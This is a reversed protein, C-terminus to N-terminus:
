VLTFATLPGRSIEKASLNKGLSCLSFAEGAKDGVEKAIELGSEHYDIATKFQGLGFYACGLNGYTIGEGAKDGM